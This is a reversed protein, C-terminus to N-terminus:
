GGCEILWRSKRSKEFAHTKVKMAGKKIGTVVAERRSKQFAGLHDGLGIRIRELLIKM